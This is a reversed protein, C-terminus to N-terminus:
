LGDIEKLLVNKEGFFKIRFFMPIYKCCLLFFHVKPKWGRRFFMRKFQNYLRSLNFGYFFSEAFVKLHKMDMGELGPPVYVVYNSKYRSFDDTLIGGQKEAVDHIMTKPYPCTISFGLADPDIKNAFGITNRISGPTDWPHGLMFGTYCLLGADKITKVATRADDLSIGKHIKDLVFSDGSEVGISIGICGASKMLVLIDQSVLNARTQCWWRISLGSDLLKYCFDMVRNRNVTFTEDRFDFVRIGYKKILQKIDDIVKDVCRFRVRHDSLIWNSCFGCDFPCGRSGMYPIAKLGNTLVSLPVDNWCPLEIDDLDIFDRVPNGYLGAINDVPKNNFFCFLFERLTEEGEGICVFDAVGVFDDPCLTPHVGGVIVPVSPYRKKLGVILKKGNDAMYSFPISVGFVCPVNHDTFDFIDDFSNHNCVVVNFGHKVLYSELSPISSLFDVNKDHPPYMLM